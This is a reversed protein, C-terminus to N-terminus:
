DGEAVQRNTKGQMSEPNQWDIRELLARKDFGEVKGAPHWINDQWYIKEDAPFDVCQWGTLQGRKHFDDRGNVAYNIAEQSDIKGMYRVADMAYARAFADAVARTNRSVWFGANFYEDVVTRWWNPHQKDMACFQSMRAVVTAFRIINKDSASSLGFNVYNWPGLGDLLRGYLFDAVGGNDDELLAMPDPCKISIVADGDIYVFPEGYSLKPHQHILLQTRLHDNGDGISVVPDTLQVYDLSWREAAAEHSAAVNPQVFGGLNITVLKM